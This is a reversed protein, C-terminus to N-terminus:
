KGLKLKNEIQIAFQSNNPVSWWTCLRLFSHDSISDGFGIVPRVGDKERIKNLLFEVAHGKEICNPLWAINNGNRHVYYGSLDLVSAVVDAIAYIEDIKKSDRHKMVLYIPQDEYEYNIRVWGDVNAEKLLENCKDQLAFLSSTYPKLENLIHEKWEPDAKKDAGLIVAGHTTVMWSSFPINVRAIEETGRATVPILESHELLWDTFLSQEENMFSRPQMERDYAGVRVPEQGLEDRMKRKTQFLTDDLDTLAIPNLM